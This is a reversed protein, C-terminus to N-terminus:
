RATAAGNRRQAEAPRRMAEALEEIAPLAGLLEDALADPLRGLREAFLATRLRRLRRQLQAGEKTVQVLVARRDDPHITRTVLGADELKGIIRSVMTPNLGEIDALESAGVPGVRVVTGLVSMQTRSLGEGSVQRDVLKAIRALSIRLRTIDDPTFRDTM